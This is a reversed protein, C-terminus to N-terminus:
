GYKPGLFMAALNNISELRISNLRFTCCGAACFHKKVCETSLRYFYDDLV